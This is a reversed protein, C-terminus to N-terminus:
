RPPSETDEDSGAIEDRSPEDEAPQPPRTVIRVLQGPGQLLSAYDAHNLYYESLRDPPVSSARRSIAPPVPPVPSAVSPSAGVPVTIATGELTDRGPGQLSLIAVVAVTAAVAAGAVPRLWRRRSVHPETGAVPSPDTLITSLVALLARPDGQRLDGRISDGIVAYRLATEKMTEDRALRRVFLEGEGAGLEDDLFASLQEGTGSVKENMQSM